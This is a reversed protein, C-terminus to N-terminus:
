QTHITFITYHLTQINAFTQRKNNNNNQKQDPNSLHTFLVRFIGFM